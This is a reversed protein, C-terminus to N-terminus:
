CAGEANGGAGNRLSLMQLSRVAAVVRNCEGRAIALYDGALAPESAHGAEDLLAALITLPQAIEHLADALLVAPTQQATLTGLTQGNVAPIKM